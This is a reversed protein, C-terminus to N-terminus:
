GKLITTLCGPLSFPLLTYAICFIICIKEKKLCCGLDSRNQSSKLETYFSHEESEGLDKMKGPNFKLRGAKM